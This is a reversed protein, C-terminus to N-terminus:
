ELQVKMDHWDEKKKEQDGKDISGINGVRPNFPQFLTQVHVWLAVAVIDGQEGEGNRKDQEFHGAVDDQLLNWWHDPQAPDHDAPTLPQLENWISDFRPDSSRYHLGKYLPDPNRGFSRLAQLRDHKSPSKRTQIQEQCTAQIHKLLHM